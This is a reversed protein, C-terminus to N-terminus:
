KETRMQELLYLAEANTLLRGEKRAQEIILDKATKQDEKKNFGFM